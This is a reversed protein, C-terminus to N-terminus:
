SEHLTTTKTVSNTTAYNPNNNCLRTEWTKSTVRPQPIIRSWIVRNRFRESHDLQYSPAPRGMKVRLTLCELGTEPLFLHLKSQYCRSGPLAWATECGRIRIWSVWTTLIPFGNWIIFVQGKRPFSFTRRRPAVRFNKRQLYFVGPKKRPLYRYVLGRVGHEIARAPTTDGCEAALFKTCAGLSQWSNGFCASTYRTHFFRRLWKRSVKLILPIQKSWSDLVRSARTGTMRLSLTVDV